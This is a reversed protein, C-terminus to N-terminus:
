TGELRNYNTIDVKCQCQAQFYGPGSLIAAQPKECPSSCNALNVTRNIDRLHEPSVSM